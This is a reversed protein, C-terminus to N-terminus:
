APEAAQWPTVLRLLPAAAELRALMEPRGVLRFLATTRDYSCNVAFLCDLGPNYHFDVNERHRSVAGLPIAIFRDSPLHWLWASDDLGFNDGRIDLLLWDEPLAILVIHQGYCYEGLRPQMGRLPRLYHRGTVPDVASIAFMDDRGAGLTIGSLQWGCDAAPLGPLSAVNVHAVVECQLVDDQDDREQHRPAWDMPSLDAALRLELRRIFRVGKRRQNSVHCNLLWGDAARVLSEPRYAAPQPPDPLAKGLPAEGCILLPPPFLDPLTCEGFVAGGRQLVVGYTASIGKQRPQSFRSVAWFSEVSDDGSVPLSSYLLSCQGDESAPSFSALIMHDVGAPNVDWRSVDAVVTEHPSHWLCYDPTLWEISDTGDGDWFDTVLDLKPRRIQKAKEGWRRGTQICLRAHTLDGEWIVPVSDSPKEDAPRLFFVHNDGGTVVSYLAIGFYTLTQGLAAIGEDLAVNAYMSATKNVAPDTLADLYLYASQLASLATDVTERWDVPTTFILKASSGDPMSSENSSPLGIKLVKM